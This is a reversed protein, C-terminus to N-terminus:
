AEAGSVHRGDPYVLWVSKSFQEKSIQPYQEAVDQSAAFEVREEALRRWYDVWIRCFGCRGDYILVPRKSQEPSSSTMSFHPSATGSSCPISKATTIIWNTRRRLSATRRWSKSRDVPPAKVYPTVCCRARISAAM